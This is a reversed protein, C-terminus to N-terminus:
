SLAHIRRSSQLSPLSMYQPHFGLVSCSYPSQVTVFSAVHVSSPLLSFTQALQPSLIVSVIEAVPWTQSSSYVTSLSAVHVSSPESDIWQETQSAILSVVTRAIAFVSCAYPSQVIVFSAVQVSSPLLSFTHALQPSLTVSVMAAVPWAYPSQVTVFSAVQVSSPLLSFTQVLQPSLIM